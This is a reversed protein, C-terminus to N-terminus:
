GHILWAGRPLRRALRHCNGPPPQQGPPLGPYWIRCKGPPPLHGPPIKKYYKMGHGKKGHHKRKKHKQRHRHEREREHEHEHHREHRHENKHVEIMGYEGVMLVRGQSCGSLAVAVAFTIIVKMRLRNPYRM